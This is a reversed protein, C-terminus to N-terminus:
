IMRVLLIVIVIVVVTIVILINTKRAVPKAIGELVVVM